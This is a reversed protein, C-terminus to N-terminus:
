LGGDETIIGARPCRLGDTAMKVFRGNKEDIKWAMRAAFLTKDQSDYPKDYAVESDLLAVIEGPSEQNNIQCTGTFEPSKKSHSPFPLVDRVIGRTNELLIFENGCILWSVSNLRDSVEEGGLDKLRLNKHRAEIIVVRENSMRKGMLAAPINSGCRITEFGDLAHAEGCSLLLFALANLTKIMLASGRTRTPQVSDFTSLRLHGGISTTPLM